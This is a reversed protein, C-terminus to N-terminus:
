DFVEASFAEIITGKQKWADRPLGAKICTHELFTDLDWGYETAVQPLLLGRNFGRSIIIGDRGVKIESIDNVKRIPTLVSIEFDLSPLEAPTVRPFRPDELAAARAMEAVTTILPKTGVINGICGRLQGSKTLTVFAGWQEGLKGSKDSFVPIPGGNVVSKLTEKVVNRLIDKEKDSLGLDVGIKSEKEDGPISLVASLYGVVNSNDGTVDGSTAMNLVTAKTAGLERCVMMVVAIPGGGCAECKNSDLADLLGTPDYAEVYSRIVSDLKKATGANHFHSLDSSAVLLVKKGRVAATVAKALAECSTGTQSGMVIPVLKFDGLAEQLFPLQIEVSHEMRGGNGNLHGEVSARVDDSADFDAIAKAISDDVPILGLPTKYAGHPFVSSFRLGPDVHNPAIVVVADYSAGQVQKYAYGAVPGSYVHGAHPVILGKIAGLGQVAKAGEMYRSVALKLSEKDGEYWQGALASERIYKQPIAMSKGEQVNDTHGDCACAATVCLTIFLARRVM